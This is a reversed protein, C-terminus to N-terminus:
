WGSEGADLPILVSFRSVFLNGHMQFDVPTGAQSGLGIGALQSRYYREVQERFESHRPRVGKPSGSPMAPPFCEFPANAYNTGFPQNVDVHGGSFLRDGIQVDFHVRASLRDANGGVSGLVQDGQAVETFTFQALGSM